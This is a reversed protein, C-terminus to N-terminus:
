SDICDLVAGSGPCRMPFYCFVISCIVCSLWSTLGKGAPSVVYFGYLALSIAFELEHVVVSSELNNVGTDFAILLSTILYQM